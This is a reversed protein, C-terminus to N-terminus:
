PLNDAYSTFLADFLTTKPPSKRGVFVPAPHNAIDPPLLSLDMTSEMLRAMTVAPEVAPPELDLQRFFRREGYEFQVRYVTYVPAIISACGVYVWHLGPPERTRTAYIACWFSADRSTTINGVGNEPFTTRLQEILVDWAGPEALKTQWLEHLRQEEPSLEQNPDEQSPWYTRAVELLKEISPVM